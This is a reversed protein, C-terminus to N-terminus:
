GTVSITNGSGQDLLKATSWSSASGSVTNGTTGSGLWVSYQPITTTGSQVLGLVKNGHPPTNTQGTRNAIRVSASHIDSVVSGTNTLTTGGVAGVTNNYAGRDMVIGGYVTDQAILTDVKNNFPSPNVDEGFILGVTYHKITAKTITNDHSGGGISVGPDGDTAGTEDGYFENFTNFASGGYIALGYGPNANSIVINFSNRQADGLEVGTATAGSSGGLAAIAGDLHSDYLSPAFVGFDRDHDSLLLADPALTVGTGSLRFGESAGTSYEAALYSKIGWFNYSVSSSVRVDQVTGSCGVGAVGVTALNNSNVVVRNLRGTATVTVAVGMAATVNYTVDSVTSSVTIPASLNIVTGAQPAVPRRSLDVSAVDTYGPPPTTTTTTTTPTTTTVTTTPGTVTSTVTPITYTVTNCNSAVSNPVTVAPTTSVGAGDVAVTHAPATTGTATATACAVATGTTEGVALAAGGIGLAFLVVLGLVALVKRNM